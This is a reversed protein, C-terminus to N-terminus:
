KRESWTVLATSGLHGTDVQGHVITGGDHLYRHTLAPTHRLGPSLFYKEIGNAISQTCIQM